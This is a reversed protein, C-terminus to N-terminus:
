KHTSILCNLWFYPIKDVGASKWKHSKTLASCLEEINIVKWEQEEVENM